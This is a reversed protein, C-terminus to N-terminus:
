VSNARIEFSRRSVGRGDHFQRVETIIKPMKLMDKAEWVEKRGLATWLKGPKGGPDYAVM